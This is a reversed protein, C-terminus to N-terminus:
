RPWGGRARAPAATHPVPLAGLMPRGCTGHTRHLAIEHDLTELASSVFGAAGDPHACAGRGPLLGARAQVQDPVQAGVVLDDVARALAPLGFWCPGCQGASESALWRTVAAVEGLLCTEAPPRAVVGANLRLGSRRLAPRSVTLDALRPVWTGHYGGILVPRDDPGPLLGRLALGTPVEMVVPGPEYGWVTLLTTGPEDPDGVSAHDRVGRAVLLAVQAFTEVNSAFTPAGRVGSVTPLVRRGGPLAAHGDVARIAARVEGSVFRGPRHVLRVRRTDHREQMARHLSRASADDHVTLTVHRTGLAGAVVLAGDLVLHPALTMLTRDKFSAPEGESGNVLVQTRSGVSTARLKTAVPFAAGGRGLLAVETTMAVLRDIGVPAPVGHLRRHTVLDLRHGDGTGLLLRAAGFAIAPPLPASRPDRTATM